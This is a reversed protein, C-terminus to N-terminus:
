MLTLVTPEANQQIQWGHFDTGDFAVVVKFRRIPASPAIPASQPASAAMFGFIALEHLVDFGVSEKGSGEGFKNWISNIIAEWHRGVTRKGFVSFLETNVGSSIHPGFIM